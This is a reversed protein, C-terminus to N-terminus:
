LAARGVGRATRRRGTGAGLLRGPVCKGVLRRETAHFSLFPGHASCGGGRGAARVSVLREASREWLFSDSDSLRTDSFFPPLSPTMLAEGATRPPGGGRFPLRTSDCPVSTFPLYAKTRMQLRGKTLRERRRGPRSVGTAGGLVLNAGHFFLIQLYFM